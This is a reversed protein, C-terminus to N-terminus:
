SEQSKKEVAPRGAGACRVRGAATREVRQVEALGRCITNRSIGTIEILRAIGGREWELALLGVFRRRNKENLGAVVWNIAQHEKAAASYPHQQCTQCVCQHVNSKGSQKM